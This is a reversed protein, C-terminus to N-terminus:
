IVTFYFELVDVECKTHLTPETGVAAVRRICASVYSDSVPEPEQM